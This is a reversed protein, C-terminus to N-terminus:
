HDLIELRRGLIKYRDMLIYWSLIKDQGRGTWWDVQNQNRKCSWIIMISPDDSDFNRLVLAHLNCIYIHLNQERVEDTSVPEDPLDVPDM